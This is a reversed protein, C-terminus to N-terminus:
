AQRFGSPKAGEWSCEKGRWALAVRSLAYRGALRCQLTYDVGVLVALLLPLLMHLLSVRPPLPRGRSFTSAM